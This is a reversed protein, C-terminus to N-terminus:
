PLYATGPADDTPRLHFRQAHAQWRQGAKMAAVMAQADTVYVGGVCSIGRAFLLDPFCGATPGILSIERAQSCWGLMEDLSDNLCMAATAIVVSCERLAAPQDTVELGDEARLLQAKREIVVVPMGQARVREILPAFYGIFGVRDGAQLTVGFSDQATPPVYRQQRWWWATIANIAALGISREADSDAAYGRVLSLVASGELQAASFRAPMGRQSEGLWAYYLGASGDALGIVGFEVDGTQECRPEPVYALTVAPLTLGQVTQEVQAILSRRFDANSM